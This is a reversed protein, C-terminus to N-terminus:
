LPFQFDPLVGGDDLTDQADLTMHKDAATYVRVECTAPYAYWVLPPCPFHLPNGARM